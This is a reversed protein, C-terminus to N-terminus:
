DTYLCVTGSASKPVDGIETIESNYSYYEVGEICEQVGDKILEAISILQHIEVNAGAPCSSLLDMLEYVKM